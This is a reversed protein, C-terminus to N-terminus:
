DSLTHGTAVRELGLRRRADEFFSHRIRRLAQELNEGPPPPPARRIDIPLSLRDALARVFNEDEDSEAGRLGHNVHLVTLPFGLRHLLDLLALSDAGASVAVGVRAGPPAM